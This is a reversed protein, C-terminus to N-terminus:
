TDHEGNRTGAARSAAAWAASPPPKRSRQHADEREAAPREIRLDAVPDGLPEPPSRGFTTSSGVAVASRGSIM